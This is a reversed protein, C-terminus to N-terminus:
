KGELQAHRAIKKRLDSAAHLALAESAFSVRALSPHASGTLVPDQVPGGRPSLAGLTPPKHEYSIITGGLKKLRRPERHEDSISLGSGLAYPAYVVTM